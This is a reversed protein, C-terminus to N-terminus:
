KKTNNEEVIIYIDENEKKMFYEERAFKELNESNTKLEELKRNSDEIKQEYFEVQHNLDKKEGFLNLREVLNNDDIFLVILLFLVIAILYKNKLIKRWPLKKM